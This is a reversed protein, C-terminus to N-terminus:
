RRCTTASRTASKMVSSTPPGNSHKLVIAVFRAPRAMRASTSTWAPRHGGMTTASTAGSSQAGVMARGRRPWDSGRHPTEARNSGRPCSVGAPPISLLCTQITTPIRRCDAKTMITNARDFSTGLIWLQPWVRDRTGGV